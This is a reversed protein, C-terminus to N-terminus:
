MVIAAGVQSRCALTEYAQEWLKHLPCTDDYKLGEGHSATLNNKKNRRGDLSFNIGCDLSITEKLKGIFSRYGDNGETEETYPRCNNKSVEILM